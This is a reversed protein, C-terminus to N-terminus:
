KPESTHEESRPICMGHKDVPIPVANISNATLVSRAGWYGPDEVWAEDNPNGLMRTVLDIAQHVGETIIIQDPECQVSRAVGLYAALAERLRRLGGGQSYSLMEPAPAKWHRHVLQAFKQHPFQKVDPVGPMFAGWKSPSVPAEQAIRNGRESLQATLWGPENNSQELLSAPYIEPLELSVFTGDGVRSETFGECLLEHYVTVVTNRAMGLEEALERSSPLRQGPAIHGSRIATTLHRYLQKYM